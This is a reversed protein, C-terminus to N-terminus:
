KITALCGVGKNLYGNAFNQASMESKNAPRVTDLIYFNDNTAIGLSADPLRWLEGPSAGLVTRHIGILGPAIRILMDEKSERQILAVAGPWPTLARVTAHISKADKKWQICGEEKTIKAAYTALADNQKTASAKGNRLADIVELLLNGGLMSLNDHLTASTHDSILTSRMAYVPGTDLGAEMHMISVGTEVHEDMIARQIPAAGRYLPLLSAHVNLPALKPVNLVSQPLILGYAAVVLIDPNHAQLAAVDVDNKFNVPQYIPISNQLSFEKVPPAVIKKGRGAPKDPQSYAASVHVFPCELLAKLIHVAFHPTGMFVCNVM